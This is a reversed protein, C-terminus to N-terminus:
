GTELKDQRWSLHVVFRRMGNALGISIFPEVGVIQLLCGVGCCRPCICRGLLGTCEGLDQSLGGLLWGSASHLSLGLQPGQVSVMRLLM